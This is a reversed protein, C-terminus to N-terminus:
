EAKPANETKTFPILKNLIEQRKACAGCKPIGVADTVRAIADGLGRMQKCSACGSQIPKPKKLADTIGRKKSEESM